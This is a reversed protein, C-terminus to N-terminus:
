PHPGGTLIPRRSAVLAEAARKAKAAAHVPALQAQMLDWLPRAGGPDLRMKGMESRRLLVKGTTHSNEECLISIMKSKSWGHEITGAREVGDETIIVPTGAMDAGRRRLMTAEFGRPDLRVPTPAAPLKKPDITIAM